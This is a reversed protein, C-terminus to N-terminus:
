LSLKTFQSYHPKIRSCRFLSIVILLICSCRPIQPGDRWISSFLPSGLFGPFGTDLPVAASTEEEPWCDPWCLFNGQAGSRQKGVTSGSIRITLFTSRFALSATGAKSMHQTLLIAAPEVGKRQRRLYL